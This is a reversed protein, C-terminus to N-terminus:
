FLTGSVPTDFPEIIKSDMPNVSNGSLSPSVMHTHLLAENFPLLLQNMKRLSIDGSIWDGEKEPDLIVPMRKKTNHIKEM